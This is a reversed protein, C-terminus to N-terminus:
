NIKQLVPLLEHPTLFGTLTRDRLLRGQSDIFVVYPLGVGGYQQVATAERDNVKIFVFRRLEAAIEPSPYTKTELEKCAACWDASFDIMVPKHAATAEALIKQSQPIWQEAAYAPVKSRTASTIAAHAFVVCCAALFVKLLRLRSLAHLSFAALFVAAGIGAFLTFTSTSPVRLDLIPFVNKLFYAAVILMLIGFISKVTQMWTGSKPLSIAFTGVVFFPLGIGLSYFFLLSGGFILRQTTAVYTLVAGLIPGTCPAAIVGAVVGMAFAGFRGEGGV